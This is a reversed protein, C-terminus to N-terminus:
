QYSLRLTQGQLIDIDLVNEPTLSIFIEYNPHPSFVGGAAYLSDEQGYVRHERHGNITILFLFM